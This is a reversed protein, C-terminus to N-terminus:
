KKRGQLSKVYNVHKRDYYKSQINGSKLTNCLELVQQETFLIQTHSLIVAGLQNIIIANQCNIRSIDVSDSTFCIIGLFYMYSLNFLKYLNRLHGYNQLYPSYFPYNKQGSKTFLVQTWMKSNCDGFITGKHSKTEIVFIGYRSIVIHDVQTTGKGTKLMVNNFVHYASGLSTLLSAVDKEAKNGQIKLARDTKRKESM